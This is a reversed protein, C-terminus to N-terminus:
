PRNFHSSKESALVKRVLLGRLYTCFALHEVLDRGLTLTSSFCTPEAICPLYKTSAAQSKWFLAALYLIKTSVGPRFGLKVIIFYFYVDILLSRVFVGFFFIVMYFERKLGPEYFAIMFRHPLQM